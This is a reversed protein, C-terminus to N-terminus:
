KSSIYDILSNMFNWWYNYEFNSFSYIVGNSVTKSTSHHINSKCFDLQKKLIEKALQKDKIGLLDFLRIYENKNFTFHNNEGFSKSFYRSLNNDLFHCISRLSDYFAISYDPHFKIKKYREVENLYYTNDLEKYGLSIEVGENSLPILIKLEPNIRYQINYKKILKHIDNIIHYNVENIIAHRYIGNDVWLYYDSLILDSEGNLSLIYKEFNIKNTAKNISLIYSIDNSMSQLPFPKEMVRENHFRDFNDLIDNVFYNLLKIYLDFRSKVDKADKFYFLQFDENFINSYQFNYLSLYKKFDEVYSSDLYPFIIDKYPVNYDGRPGNLDSNIQENCAKIFGLYNESETLM